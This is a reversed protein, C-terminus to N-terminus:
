AGCIVNVYPHLRIAEKAFRSDRYTRLVLECSALTFFDVLMDVNMDDKSIKLDEKSLNHNGKSSSCELSASSMLITQPYFRKWLEYSDKDDSVCIMGKGSFGGHMMTNVALCQIGLQRKYENKVRDTGRIHIGMCKALNYKQTRERVANLIRSDIVRFYNAFKRSDEYLTRMGVNALVIVDGSLPKTLQGVDLKYEKHKNCLDQSMPTNLKGQWYSPFVTADEPIEDLSKLTPMNVLNFYTYFSEAEHSWISDTWDVYIQLNYQLAYEIGMKLSELRDGFGLWGKVVLYKM